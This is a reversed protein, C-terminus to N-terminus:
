SPKLQLLSPGDREQLVASSAHTAGSPPLLDLEYARVAESTAHLEAVFAAHLETAFAAHAEAAFAAHLEAAFAAHLEAVFAAHESGSTRMIEVCSVPSESESNSGQLQALLQMGLFRSVTSPTLKVWKKSVYM